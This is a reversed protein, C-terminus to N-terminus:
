GRGRPPAVLKFINQTGRAQGGWSKKLGFVGGGAVITKTGRLSGNGKDSAIAYTMCQRTHAPAVREDSAGYRIAQRCAAYLLLSFVSARGCTAAFQEDSCGVALLRDVGNSYGNPAFCRDVDGRVLGCDLGRNIGGSRAVQDDDVGTGVIFQQEHPLGHPQLADPSRRADDVGIRM